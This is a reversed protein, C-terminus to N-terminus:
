CLPGAVRIRSGETDEISGGPSSGPNGARWAPTKGKSWLGSDILPGGPIRVGIESMRRRFGATPRAARETSVTPISGVVPQTCSLGAVKANAGM